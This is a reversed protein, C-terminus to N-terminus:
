VRRGRYAEVESQSGYSRSSGYRGTSDVEMQSGYSRSSSYRGTSDVEMQSGYSRSSGYRGTSDVEMLSPYRQVSDLEMPTTRSTTRMWTLDNHVGAPKGTSKHLLYSDAAALCAREILGTIRSRKLLLYITPKNNYSVSM